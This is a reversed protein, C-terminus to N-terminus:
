AASTRMALAPRRVAWNKGLRIDKSRLHLNRISSRRMRTLLWHLSQRALPAGIAPQPLSWRIPAGSSYLPLVASDSANFLVAIDGSALAASAPNTGSYQHPKLAAVQSIFDNGYLKAWAYWTLLSAGGSAPDVVGAMGKWQPDAIGKWSALVKAQEDTVLDTNWAIGILILQLPYWYGSSKLADPYSKDNAIMYKEFLGESAENNLAGPDTDQTVDAVGRKARSESLFRERLPGTALQFSQVTICPFTKKFLDVQSKAADATVAQYITLQGEACSAKLLDYPVGPMAHQM